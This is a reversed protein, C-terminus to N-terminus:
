AVPLFPPRGNFIVSHDAFAPTIDEATGRPLFPFVSGAALCAVTPKSIDSAEGTFGRMRQIEYGLPKKGERACRGILASEAKDPLFAGLAMAGNAKDPPVAGFPTQGGDIFSVEFRGWGHSREGGLGTDGLLRMASKFLSRLDEPLDAALVGRVGIHPVIRKRFYPVACGTARDVAASRLREEYFLDPPKGEPLVGNVYGRLTEVPLWTWKKAEKRKEPGVDPFPVRPRPVYFVGEKEWLLSSVGAEQLLRNVDTSSFLRAACCGIGGWVTSADIGERTRELDGALSGSRIGSSFSLLSVIRSYGM